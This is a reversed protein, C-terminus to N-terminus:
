YQSGFISIRILHYSCQLTASDLVYGIESRQHRVPYNVQQESFRLATLNVDLTGNAYFGFTNLQVLFRTENVIVSGGQAILSAPVGPGAPTGSGAPAGPAPGVLDPRSAKEAVSDFVCTLRM